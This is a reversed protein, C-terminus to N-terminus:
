GRWMFTMMNANLAVITAEQIDLEYDGTISLSGSNGIMDEPLAPCGVTALRIDTPEYTIYGDITGIERMGCRISIGQVAYEIAQSIGPRFVINFAGETQM